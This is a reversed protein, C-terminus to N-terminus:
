SQDGRSDITLSLGHAGHIGPPVGKGAGVGAYLHPLSVRSPTGKTIGTWSVCCRSRSPPIPDSKPSPPGPCIISGPLGGTWVFVLPRVLSLLAGGKESGQISLGEKGIEPQPPGRGGWCGGGEWGGDSNHLFGSKCHVAAFLPRLAKQLLRQLSSPPLGALPARSPLPCAPGLLSLTPFPLAGQKPTSHAGFGLCPPRPGSDQAEQRPEL